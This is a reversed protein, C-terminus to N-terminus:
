WEVDELKGGVLNGAMGEFHGGHAGLVGSIWLTFADKDPILLMRTVGTDQFYLGLRVKMGKHFKFAWEEFVKAVLEVHFNMDEMM